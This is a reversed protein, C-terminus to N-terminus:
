IEKFVKWRKLFDPLGEGQLHLIVFFLLMYFPMGPIKYRVLSGFNGTSTGVAAGFLFAFVLCFITLPHNTATKIFGVVGLKKLTYFFLFLCFFSEIANLIMIASNVEWPFPRFYSAILGLPLMLVPSDSGLSFNSGSNRQMAEATYVDRQQEISELILETNYRELTADSTLNKYLLFGLGGGIVLLFILLVRRMQMNKIRTSYQIVVLLVLAPALALLIYPKITYLLYGALIIALLSRILSGRGKFINYSSAFLFGTAGFTLSDKLIGSSWFSVTPIFFCALAILRKLQPFERAFVRYIQLAGLLAYFSFLLAIGLYSGLVPYSLLAGIKPITFNPMTSMYYHNEGLEDMEFYSYLMDDPLSRQMGLLDFYSISGDSIAARMDMISVYYRYSDGSRYYFQMIATFAILMTVRLWLGQRFFRRAEADDHKLYFKSILFIALMAFPLGWLDAFSFLSTKLLFM